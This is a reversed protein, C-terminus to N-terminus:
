VALCLSCMAFRSGTIMSRPLPEPLAPIAITAITMTATKTARNMHCGHFVEAVVDDDVVITCGGACVCFLLLGGDDCVCCFGEDM